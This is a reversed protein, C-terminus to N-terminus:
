VSVYLTESAAPLEAEIVLVTITLAAEDDVFLLEDSVVGGVIESVPECVILRVTPSLKESGPALAESATSPVSVEEIVVDPDTSVEEM